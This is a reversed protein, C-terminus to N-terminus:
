GALSSRAQFHTSNLAKVTARGEISHLGQLRRRWTGRSQCPCCVRRSLHLQFVGGKWHSQDPRPAACSEAFHVGCLSLRRHDTAAIPQRRSDKCGAAIRVISLHVSSHARPLPIIPHRGTQQFIIFALAVTPALAPPSATCTSRALLPLASAAPPTHRQHRSNPLHPLPFIFPSLCECRSFRLVLCDPVCRM